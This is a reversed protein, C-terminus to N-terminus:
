INWESSVLIKVNKIITTKCIKMRKWDRKRCIRLVYIFLWKQSATVSWGFPINICLNLVFYYYINSYQNRLRLKTLSLLLPCISSCHCNEGLWRTENPERELALKDAAFAFLLSEIWIRQKYCSFVVLRSNLDM